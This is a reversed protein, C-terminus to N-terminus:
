LVLGTTLHLLPDQPHDKPPPKIKPPLLVVVPLTICQCRNREVASNGNVLSKTLQFDQLPLGCSNTNVTSYVSSCPSVFYVKRPLRPLTGLSQQVSGSCPLWCPNRSLIYHPLLNHRVTAMQTVLIQEYNVYLTQM